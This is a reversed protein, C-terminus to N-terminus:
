QTVKWDTCAPWYSRTDTGSGHSIRAGDGFVCKPYSGDHYRLSERHVCTGCTFPRDKPDGKAYAGGVTEPHRRIGAVVLALPHSGGGIAAIQRLTRSRDASLKEPIPEAEMAFLGGDAM